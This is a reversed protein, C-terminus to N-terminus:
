INLHDVLRYYLVSPALFWPKGTYLPRTPFPLRNFATQGAKLGSVQQGLKMGLYSAMGVGAGCYGMAYYLGNDQGIHMLRDFTFAIHGMWSHSIKATKLEPFIRALAAHLKPGTLRPNSERLSVRGGFLIRSRDPSPRYYYVVRRTDSIIRDTPLLRDMLAKALPETAIMYSGIPIIRRRLRPTLAGTYGNTAIAIRSTKVTGAPTAVSFGEKEKNINLAPCYSLVTAGAARSKALLGKHYAAPDLSAHKPFVAGGFYHDTGLESRQESKPIMFAEDELGPPQQEVARALREYRAPNHAAHFRGAVTFNCDIGETKIFSEIYELSNCGERHIAFAMEKGYKNALDTFAPKIAASIQGGNRTSAGWGAHEADLVLTGRAARATQIAAHLGTYGAGIILVDVKAPLPAAEKEPPPNREWWYPRAKYRKTFM